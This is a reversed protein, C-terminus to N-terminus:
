PDDEPDGDPTTGKEKAWRAQAAKRAKEKRKAIYEEDPQYVNWDHVDWGYEAETWLGAAVLMRAEKRTAHIFPLAASPIAGYTGKEGCYALGCVYAFAAKFGGPRSIVNLIKPNSPFGSDLRVWPLVASM